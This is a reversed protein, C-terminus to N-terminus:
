ARKNFSFPVIRSSDGSVICSLVLTSMRPLYVSSFFIEKPQTKAIPPHGLEGSVYLCAWMGTWGPFTQPYITYVPSDRRNQPPKEKVQQSEAPRKTGPSQIEWRQVLLGPAWKPLYSAQTRRDAPHPQLRSPYLSEVDCQCPPSFGKM